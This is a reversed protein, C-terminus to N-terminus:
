PEDGHSFDATSRRIGNLVGLASHKAITFSILQSYYSAFNRASWSSEGAPVGAGLEVATECVETFWKSAHYGLGGTVEFGIASFDASRTLGYQQVLSRFRAKKKSVLRSAAKGSHFYRAGSPILGTRTPDAVTIDYGHWNASLDGLPKVLLDFPRLDSRGRIWHASEGERVQMRVKSFIEGMVEVVRDHRATKRSAHTCQSFWHVGYQLSSGSFGCVCNKVLAAGPIKAMSRMCLMVRFLSSSVSFRPIKPLAHLWAGSGRLRCSAFWSAMAVDVRALDSELKDARIRHLAKSLKSQAPWAHPVQPDLQGVSVRRQHSEFLDNMEEVARVLSPRSRLIESLPAAEPWRCKRYFRAVAASCGVYASNLVDHACVLSLGGEYEPLSIQVRQFDTLTDALLVSKYGEHIVNRHTSTFGSVLYAPLLRPLHHLQVSACWRLMHYEAMAHELQGIQQVFHRSNEVVSFLCGGVRSCFEPTGIPAGLLRPLGDHSAKCGMAELLHIIPASGERRESPHRPAYAYWKDLSITVGYSPAERLMWASFDVVDRRRIVVSLDDVISVEM